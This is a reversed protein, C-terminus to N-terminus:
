IMVRRREYLDPAELCANCGGLFGGRSLWCGAMSKWRESATGFPVVANCGRSHSLVVGPDVKGAIGSDSLVGRTGDTGIGIRRCPVGEEPDRTQTETSGDPACGNTSCRDVCRGPAAKRAHRGQLAVPTGAFEHAEDICLHETELNSVVVAHMGVRIAMPGDARPSNATAGISPGGVVVSCVPAGVRWIRPSAVYRHRIPTPHVSAPQARPSSGRPAVALGRAATGAMAADADIM